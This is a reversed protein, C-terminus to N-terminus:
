DEGLAANFAAKATELREAAAKQEDSLDAGEVHDAFVRAHEAEAESLAAELADFDPEDDAVVAKEAKKVGKKVGTKATAQAAEPPADIPTLVARHIGILEEFSQPLGITEGAKFQLAMTSTVLGATADNIELGYRRADIQAPSLLLKQYPGFTCLPGSVLYRHM